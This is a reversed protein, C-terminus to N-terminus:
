MGSLGPMVAKMQQAALNQSQRIAANVSRLLDKELRGKGGANVLAEDIELSQFNQSGNVVIRVGDVENVEVTSADLERKIRDAQKKMEMLEKMKDFM